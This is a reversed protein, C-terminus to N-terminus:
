AVLRSKEHTTGDDKTKLSEVWKTKHINEGYPVSSRKVVEFVQESKLGELETMRSHEFTREESPSTISWSEDGFMASVAEPSYVVESGETVNTGKKFPQVVHSRFIKRGSPLQVVVTDDDISIFPFPGEWRKSHDRFLLIPSGPSLSELDIREKGYPGKYKLAFQVRRRSHEKEVAKMAQKMAKAREIQKIATVKRAPRPISGYM